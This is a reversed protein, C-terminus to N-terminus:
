TFIIHEPRGEERSNLNRWPLFPVYHTKTNDKSIVFGPAFYMTGCINNSIFILPDRPPEATQHRGEAWPLIRSDPSQTRCQAGHTSSAEGEAQTEVERETDRMFLYIFDKFFFSTYMHAQTHKPLPPPCELLFYRLSM